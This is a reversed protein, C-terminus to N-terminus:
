NSETAHSSVAGEPSLLPFYKVNKQTNEEEM